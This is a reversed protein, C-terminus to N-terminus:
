RQQRLDMVEMRQLIEQYPNAAASTHATDPMDATYQAGAATDVTFQQPTAQVPEAQTIQM